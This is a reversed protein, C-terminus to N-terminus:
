NYKFCSECIVPVGFPGQEPMNTKEYNSQLYVIENPELYAGCEACFQGEIMADAIEGM